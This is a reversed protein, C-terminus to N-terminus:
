PTPPIHHTVNSTTAEFTEDDAMNFYCFRKRCFPCKSAKLKDCCRGCMIHGCDLIIFKRTSYNGCCIMCDQTKNKDKSCRRISLDSITQRIDCFINFAIATFSRFPKSLDNMRTEVIDEMGRLEALYLYTRAQRQYISWDNRRLKKLIRKCVFLRLTIYRDLPNRNFKSYADRIDPNITQNVKIMFLDAM